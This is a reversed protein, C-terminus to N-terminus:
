SASPEKLRKALVEFFTVTHEIMGKAQDEDYVERAHAARVRWGDKFYRFQMAAESYFKQDADKEASKPLDKMGAIKSEIQRILTEQDLQEIPIKNEISLARAMARLGIEVARVCHLVTATFRGFAFCKGAERIEARAKPFAEKIAEPIYNKAYFYKRRNDPLYAFLTNKLEEYLVVILSEFERETRPPDSKAHEIFNKSVPLDLKECLEFLRTLHKQVEETEEASLAKGNNFIFLARMDYIEEGLQVMPRAYFTLIEMLSWLKGSHFELGSSSATACYECSHGSNHVREALLRNM